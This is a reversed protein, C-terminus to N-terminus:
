PQILDLTAGQYEWINTGGVLPTISTGSGGESSQSSQLSQFSGAPSSGFESLDLEKDKGKSPTSTTSIKDETMMVTMQCELFGSEELEGEKRNMQRGEAVVLGTDVDPDDSM